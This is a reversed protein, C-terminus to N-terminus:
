NRVFEWGEEMEKLEKETKRLEEKETKLKHALQQQREAFMMEGIEEASTLYKFEALSLNKEREIRIEKLLQLNNKYEKNEVLYDFYDMGYADKKNAQAYDLLFNIMDQDGLSAAFTLATMGNDAILDVDAGKNLLKKIGKFRSTGARQKEIIHMLATKDNRQINPDIGLKLVDEIGNAANWGPSIQNIIFFLYNAENKLGNSQLASILCFTSIFFLIKISKM